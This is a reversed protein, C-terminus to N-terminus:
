SGRQCGDGGISCCFSSSSSSSSSLFPSLCHSVQVQESGMDHNEPHRMPWLPEASYSIELIGNKIAEYGGALGLEDPLFYLSSAEDHQSMIQAFVTKKAEIVTVAKGEGREGWSQPRDYVVINITCNEPTPNRNRFSLWMRDATVQGVMSEGKDTWYPANTLAPFGANMRMRIPERPNSAENRRFVEVVYDIAVGKLEYLGWMCRSVNALTTEGLETRSDVDLVGPSVWGIISTMSGEEAQLAKISVFYDGVQSDMLVVAMNWYGESSHPKEKMTNQLDFDPNQSIGMKADIKRHGSISTFALLFQNGPNETVNFVTWEVLDNLVAKGDPFPLNAGFHANIDVPKDESAEHKVEIIAYGKNFQPFMTCSKGSSGTVAWILDSSLTVGFDVKSVAVFVASGGKGHDDLKVVCRNTCFFSNTLNEVPM